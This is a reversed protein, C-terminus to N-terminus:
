DQWAATELAELSLVDEVMKPQSSRKDFLYVLLRFNPVMMNKM